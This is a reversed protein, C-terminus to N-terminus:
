SAIRLPEASSEPRRGRLYSWGSVIALVVAVWLLGKWLWTADVATLPLLAFGVALQQALTKHKAMRSAPVSVGKSGVVTRYMSIVFERAAIIVVPVVWFVGNGVLTFMAGLVLVKDALPDLFAGSRTTGHRRAVYGDFADSACLVFWLGFAIWSGLPHDPIVWFMLPSLLLRAVTIANAWTALGAPEVM